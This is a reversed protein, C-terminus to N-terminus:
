GIVLDMPFIGLLTIVQQGADQPIFPAEVADHHRVPPVLRIRRFSDLGSIVQHLRAVRGLLLADQGGNSVAGEAFRVQVPIDATDQFVDYLGGREFLIGMRVLRVELGVSLNGAPRGPLAEDQETILVTGQGDRCPALFYGQVAFGDHVEHRAAGSRAGDVFGIAHVHYFREGPGSELHIRGDGTKIVFIDLEIVGDKGQAAGLPGVPVADGFEIIRGNGARGDVQVCGVIVEGYDHQAPDGAFAGVPVHVIIEVQGIDFSLEHGIDMSGEMGKSLLYDHDQIHTADDLRVGPFPHSIGDDQGPQGTLFARIGHGIDQSALNIRGALERHSEGNIEQVM